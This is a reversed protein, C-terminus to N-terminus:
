QKVLQKVYRLVSLLQEDTLGPNGGRPPMAIGGPRQIGSKLREVIAQESDRFLSENEALDPVGPMNGSGDDGHCVICNSFYIEEAESANVIAVRSVLLPWLFFFFLAKNIFTKYGMTM